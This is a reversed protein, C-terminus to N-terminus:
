KVTLRIVPLSFTAPRSQKVEGGRERYRYTYTVKVAANVACLPADAAATFILRYTKGKRVTKLTVGKPADSLAFVAEPKLHAPPVRCEVTCSASGGRKLTIRHGFTRPFSFHSGFTHAWNRVIVLHKAPVYHTYAFAQMASDAGQVPHRIKGSVAVLEPYVPDNEWPRVSTGSLTIVSEAAGPPISNIGTLTIGPANKLEFFIEKDFGDLRETVVTVQDAGRDQSVPIVSPVAFVRFDPRPRDLRLFFGYDEGGAGVTDALLVQYVGSAPAKFCIYSDVHQMNLGFNPRPFDDNCAIQKGDPGLIKLLSDLPSGQRRAFVEAVIQQDKEARFRFKKVEGPKSVTGSIMVPTTLLEKEAAHCCAEPLDFDPRPLPPRKWAGRGADIRYVFDARGRYLADRIELTYLGDAPATFNLIPDPDFYNDNAFALSKGAEDKVELVPQFNGPVGDGIYPNLIRGKLAFHVTEGKALKFKFLDTEGPDIQGNVASPITFLVPKRKLPPLQYYQERFEPVNGVYFRVPNTLQIAARGSPTALRFERCGPPADPAIRLTLVARQAIAPSAQLSSTRPGFLARCTLSLMLPDLQDMKEMFEHYRWVGFNRDNRLPQRHGGNYIQKMYTRAWVAQEGSGPNYNVGPAYQFKVLEVGPGSILLRTHRGLGQGGIIVRVTTGAQAGAPYVYGLNAGQLLAAAFWLSFTLLKRTPLNM